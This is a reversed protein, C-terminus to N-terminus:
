YLFSLGVKVQQGLGACAASGAPGVCVSKDPFITEVWADVAVNNSWQEMLGIGISPAIRWERGSALGPFNTSIDQEHIGVMFYAQAPTTTVGIPVAPFPPIAGLNPMGPLLNWLSALPTGAKFRQEFSAPGSLSLGQTSGNINTWGFMAEVALFIPSGKGGWAYGVSGGVDASTTTLSASGVGPVSANVSGGGGETYVGFYFGSSQYPYGSTLPTFPPAKTPLDAATAISTVTCMMLTLVSHKM